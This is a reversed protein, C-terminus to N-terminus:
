AVDIEEDADRANAVVGIPVVPTGVAAVAVVPVVVGEAVKGCGGLGALLDQLTQNRAELDGIAARKGVLEQDDAAVKFAPFRRAIEAGDIVEHELKWAKASRVTAELFKAVGHTPAVEGAGAIVLVGNQRLLPRGTEEELSRWIQHSRMALPSYQAGEGIAQRTIRTDGHTSGHEHPPAFRDIGLVSNGRRALQWTAASGMAGLGLVITEFRKM